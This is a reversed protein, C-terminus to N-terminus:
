ADKIDEWCIVSDINIDRKAKLGVVLERFEPQIGMGPRKLIIDGSTLISGAKIHRTAVLSRRTFIRMEEESHAPRKIGDGMAKEINRISKVMTKFEDPELSIKHDPGSMTRNLTFHKELITAGLAVAAIPVEFGMTHDSYGVPLGFSQKLTKIASLNVDEIPAPYNSTCHLLSLQPTFGNKDWIEYIWRMATEIEGLYAMGTSLIVPKNKKAIHQILSKNTIEGSPIKFVRVRLSDLFDVSDEDFATSIFIIKKKNCYSCLYKHADESLELKRLMALQTGRKKTNDIQYKTKFALKTVVKEAKFTQFKIADAGADVAIDVMKKGIKLSGNHNVGAEAIIFTKM